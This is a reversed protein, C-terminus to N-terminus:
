SARWLRMSFRHTALRWLPTQQQAEIYREHWRLCEAERKALDDELSAVRERMAAGSQRQAYARATAEENAIRASEQARFVQKRLDANELRLAKVKSEATTTRESQEYRARRKDM